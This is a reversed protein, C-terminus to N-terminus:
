PNIRKVDRPFLTAKRINDFGLLQSTLRELGIGMGGHPPLGYKHATLYSSFDNPNMGRIRMKEIQQEYQNIRKGGTTIELGRFILDFSETVSQNNPCDMTYFPRKKSKYETVFVFDSGTENKIIRSLLKEEEPDFDNEDTIPRSFTFRQRDDDKNLIFTLVM